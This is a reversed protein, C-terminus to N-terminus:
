PLLGFPMCVIEPEATNSLPMDIFTESFVKSESSRLEILDKIHPLITIAANVYLPIVNFFVRSPQLDYQRAYAPFKELQLYDKIAAATAPRIRTEAVPMQLLDILDVASLYVDFTDGGEEGAPFDVFAYMEIRGIKEAQQMYYTYVTRIKKAMNHHRANRLVLMTSLPALEYWKSALGPAEKGMADYLSHLANLVGAHAGEINGVAEARDVLLLGGGNARWNAEMLGRMCHSLDEFADAIQGM